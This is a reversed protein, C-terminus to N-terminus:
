QAPVKRSRLIEVPAYDDSLIEADVKMATLDELTQAYEALSFPLAYLPQLAEARKVFEEKTIAQEGPPVALLYNNTKISDIMYIRSFVQQYTKVESLYFEDNRPGWVNSAMVGDPAMRKKVIEFFEKTTLHFPIANDNYADLFIFDYIEQSRRLFQRGDQEFVRMKETPQFFFFRKAVAVVDPDIEVIDIKAEPLIKAMVKPISGGGLGIYLIKEPTRNLFAPVAFSARTYAYKLEFPDNVNVASQSGRARNFSLYRYNEAESVRIHHYLSDKEYLVKEAGWGPLSFSFHLLFAISIFYRYIM